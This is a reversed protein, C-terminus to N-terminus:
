ETNKNFVKEYAYKRLAVKRPISTLYCANLVVQWSFTVDLPGLQAGRERGSIILTAADVAASLSLVSDGVRRPVTVMGDTRLDGFWNIVFFM